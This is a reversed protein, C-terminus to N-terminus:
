GRPLVLWDPPFLDPTEKRASFWPDPGIVIQGDWRALWAGWWSLSSNAIIHHRCSAMLKLEDHAAEASNADVFCVNLGSLHQRSWALDDSFVFFQPNDIRGALLQMSRAYYDASCIGHQDFHDVTLYDGRRVHVCVSNSGLIRALWQRNVANPEYRLTLERRIVDATDAFYRHSQWYGELYTRGELRSFGPDYDFSKEAFVRLAAARGTLYRVTNVLRIAGGEVRARGLRYVFRDIFSGPRERLWDPRPLMVAPTQPAYAYGDFVVAADIAYPELAFKRRQQPLTFTTADLVLRARNRHALSRGAAYQFLQNGLGGCLHAAVVPGTGRDATMSRDPVLIAHSSM